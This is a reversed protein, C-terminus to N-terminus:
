LCYQKVIEHDFFHHCIEEDEICLVPVKVNFKVRLIEDQDIDIEKLSIGHQQVFPYLERRMDDCLHCGQRFYLILEKAKVNHDSLWFYPALQM